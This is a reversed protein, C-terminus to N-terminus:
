VCSTGIESRAQIIADVIDEPAVEQCADCFFKGDKEMVIGAPDDCLHIADVGKVIGGGTHSIIKWSNSLKGDM